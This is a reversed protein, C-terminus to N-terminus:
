AGLLAAAVAPRPASVDDMYDALSFGLKRLGLRIRGKVTGLPLGTTLAIEQHTQGQFYTRVILARQERPLRQMAQQITELRVSAYIQEFATPERGDALWDTMETVDHHPQHPRRRLRDVARHRTVSLLWARGTGRAPDFREPRNWLTLFVDQVVDEAEIGDGLVRAALARCADAHRAYLASLADDDAERLRSM